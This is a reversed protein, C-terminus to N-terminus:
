SPIFKRPRGTLLLYVKDADQSNERGNGGDMSNSIRILHRIAEEVNTRSPVVSISCLFEYWYIADTTAQLRSASERIAKSADQAQKKQEDTSRLGPNAYWSAYQILRFCVESIAKVQEQATEFIFKQLFQGVVFLIVGGILTLVAPLVIKWVDAESM